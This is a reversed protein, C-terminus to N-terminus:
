NSHLSFLSLRISKGMMKYGDDNPHIHDGSDYLPLLRTPHSLDRMIKDFDIVGDSAGSTRIWHNVQQREREDQLTYLVSGGFPLLTGVFVRIGHEHAREILQHLGTTIDVANVIGPYGPIGTIDCIGELVILYAVSPQALVDRDFRALASPGIGDNLIRNGSIGADLVAMHVHKETNTVLRDALVNPWRDNGNPTSRSGDTISDGLAILARTKKSATVEVGTLFIWNQITKVPHIIASGAFNGRPSLYNDQLAVPHITTADTPYPLYISIALDTLPRIHLKTPDSLIIAGPSMTIATKGSFTLIRDSGPVIAVGKSRLAIHVEGLTIPQVGITNSLQVRVLDGGISTHVIQRLTGGISTHVIQRLTQDSFVQDPSQQPSEVWTSVWNKAALGKAIQPQMLQRELPSMVFVIIIIGVVIGFLKLSM